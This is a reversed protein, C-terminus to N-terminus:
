TGWGDPPLRRGEDSCWYDLHETVKGDESFRLVTTGAITQDKGKARFVAWWEVAARRGCIIPEGFWCELAEEEAFARQTYEQAGRPGIKPERFPHSRYAAGENYLESIAATDKRPWARSWTQAWRRAAAEVTM